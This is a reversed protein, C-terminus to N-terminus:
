DIQPNTNSSQRPMYALAAGLLLWISRQYLMEHISSEVAFVILVLVLFTAVTDDHPRKWEVWFIRLAPIAFVLFGVLGMEALLWVPTSHIIVLQASSAITAVYAGLGAGFVPNAMFLKFGDLISTFRAQDSSSPAAAINWFALRDPALFETSPSLMILGAITAAILIGIIIDRMHLIHRYAALPLAIALTGWAARSGAFLLGSILIGILLPRYKAPFIFTCCMALMVIGFVSGTFTRLLLRFDDRDANIMLAGTAGYCLLVLWGLMKNKFAWDNWGFSYYGHLFSLLMIATALLVHGNLWSLRWQSSKRFTQYFLFLAGGLIAAPDALNVNLLTTGIPVHVQFLVATAAVLPIVRQMVRVIDIQGPISQPAKDAAMIKSPLLWGVGAIGILTALMEYHGVLMCLEISERENLHEQLNAWIRDEINNTEHLCDM